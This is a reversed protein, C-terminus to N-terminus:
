SKSKKKSGKKTNKKKGDPSQVEGKVEDVKEEEVDPEEKPTDEMIGSLKVITDEIYSEMGMRYKIIENLKTKQENSANQSSSTFENIVIKPYDGFIVMLLKKIEPNADIRELLKKQEENLVPQKEVM